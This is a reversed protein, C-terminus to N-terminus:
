SGSQTLQTINLADNL